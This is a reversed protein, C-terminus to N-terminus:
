RVFERVLDLVDAEVPQLQTFPLGVLVGGFLIARRSAQTQKAPDSTPYARAVLANGRSICSPCKTGSRLCNTRYQTIM